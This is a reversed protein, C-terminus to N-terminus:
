PRVRVPSVMVARKDRAGLTEIDDGARDATKAVHNGKGIGSLEFAGVAIGIIGLFLGHKNGMRALVFIPGCECAAIAEFAKLPKQRTVPPPQEIHPAAGPKKQFGRPSPAPVNLPDLRRALGGFVGALKSKVHDFIEEIGPRGRFSGRKSTTCKFL